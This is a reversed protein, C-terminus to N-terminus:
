ETAASAQSDEDILEIQCMQQALFRKNMHLGLTWGEVFLFDFRIAEVPPTFCLM